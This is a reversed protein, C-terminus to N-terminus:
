FGDVWWEGVALWGNMSWQNLMKHVMLWRILGEGIVLRGVRADALGPACVM